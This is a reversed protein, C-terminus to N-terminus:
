NKVIKLTKTETNDNVIKLVYIGKAFASLNLQTNGNAKQTLLQKGSIDFVSLTAEEQLDLNLIDTTPNPYIKLNNEVFNQNSLTTVVARLIM